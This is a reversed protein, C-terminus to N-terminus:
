QPSLFQILRARSLNQQRATAVVANPWYSIVTTKITRFFIYKTNQLIAGSPLPPKRLTAVQAPM